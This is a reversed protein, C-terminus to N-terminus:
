ILKVNYKLSISKLIDKYEKTKILAKDLKKIDFLEKFIIGIKNEKCRISLRKNSYFIEIDENKLYVEKSFFKKFFKFKLHKSLKLIQFINLKENLIIDFYVM